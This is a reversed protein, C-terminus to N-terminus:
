LAAHQDSLSLFLQAPLVVGPAPIDTTPGVVDKLAQLPVARPAASARSHNTDALVPMQLSSQALSGRPSAQAPPERARSGCIPKLHDPARHCADITMRGEM